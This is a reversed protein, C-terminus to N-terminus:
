LNVVCMPGILSARPEQRAFLSGCVWCCRATVALGVAGPRIIRFDPVAGASGPEAARGDRLWAVFWPVPRGHKDHPLRAIRAPEALAPATMAAGQNARRDLRIRRDRRRPTGAMAFVCRAGRNPLRGM